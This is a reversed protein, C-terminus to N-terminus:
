GAERVRIRELLDNIIRMTMGWITYGEYEWSPFTRSTEVHTFTRDLRGSIVEQLPLWFVAQAEASTSVVPLQSAAFVFPTVEVGKPGVMLPHLTPLCGLLQAASLEIALEERAERIATALLHLDEPEHRGGPLSVHGSWPDGVRESRKMLLLDYGHLVVAVAALKQGGAPLPSLAPVGLRESLNAIADLM